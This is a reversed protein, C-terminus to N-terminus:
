PRTSGRQLSSMEGCADASGSTSAASPRQRRRRITWTITRTRTFCATRSSPCPAHKAGFLRQLGAPMARADLISKSTDAVSVDPDLVVGPAGHLHRIGSFGGALLIQLHSDQLNLATRGFGAFAATLREHMAQREARTAPPRRLEGELSHLFVDMRAEREAQEQATFRRDFAPLSDPCEAM